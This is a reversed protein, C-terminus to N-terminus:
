AQLTGCSFRKQEEEELLEAQDRKKVVLLWFTYEGLSITGEPEMAQATVFLVRIDGPDAGSSCCQPAHLSSFGAKPYQTSLSSGKRRSKWNGANCSIIHSSSHLKQCFNCASLQPNSTELLPLRLGEQLTVLLSSISKTTPKKLRWHAKSGQEPQYSKRHYLPVPAERFM